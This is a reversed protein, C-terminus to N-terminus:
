NTKQIRQMISNKIDMAREWIKSERLRDMQQRSKDQMLQGVQAQLKRILDRAGLDQAHTDINEAVNITAGLDKRLREEERSQEEQILERFDEEDPEGMDTKDDEMDELDRHTRSKKGNRNSIFRDDLTSRAIPGARVTRLMTTDIGGLMSPEDLPGMTNIDEEHQSGGPEMRTRVTVNLTEKAASPDMYTAGELLLNKESDSMQCECHLNQDFRELDPVLLKGCDGCFNDDEM